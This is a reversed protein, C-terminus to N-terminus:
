REDVFAEWTIEAGAIRLTESASCYTKISMEIAKQAKEKDYKYSGIWTGKM